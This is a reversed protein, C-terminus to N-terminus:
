FRRAGSLLPDGYFTEAAVLRQRLFTLRQKSHPDTALNKLEDPDKLLDFLQFKQLKPYYIIKWERDRWSRQVDRYACFIFDRRAVPQGTFAPILSKGEITNPKPLGALDCATPFIDFLYCLSDNARNQPIGPGAMILPAHMSHDYLNQKGLLGHSGIALGHDSAFIVYTNTRRGSADLAEIIKGVQADVHSIMGYYAAIEKQVAAPERPHPLLEEDRGGLEGNDFPHQTMFNKPLPMKEPRYMNLFEKPPTRPDHPSTFALYLMFPRDVRQTRIFQAASEAFLETSYMNTTHENAKPYSGTRDFDFVPINWPDSMGGFFIPGGNSFSRVYSEKDNHWKGIGITEYGARRFYEPWTPAGPLIVGSAPAATCRFLSRGTMIM